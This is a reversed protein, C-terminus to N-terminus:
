PSLEPQIDLYYRADEGMSQVLVSYPFLALPSWFIMQVM